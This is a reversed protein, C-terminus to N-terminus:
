PQPLSHGKYRSLQRDRCRALPAPRYDSWAAAQTPRSRVYATGSLVKIHVRSVDLLAEIASPERETDDWGVVTPAERAAAFELLDLTRWADIEAETLRLAGPTPLQLHALSLLWYPRLLSAEALLALTPGHQQEHSRLAQDIKNLSPIGCAYVPRGDRTFARQERDAAERLPPGSVLLDEDEFRFFLSNTEQKLEHDFDYFDGLGGCQVYAVPAEAELAACILLPAIDCWDGEEQLDGLQVLTLAAGPIGSPLCQVLEAPLWNATNWPQEDVTQRAATTFVRRM